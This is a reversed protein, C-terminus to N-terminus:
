RPRAFGQELATRQSHCPKCYPRLNSWRLRLDPRDRPSIIHDAEQTARGCGPTCCLPHRERFLRSCRRWDADYGQAAPTPRRQNFLAKRRAEAEERTPMGSPRHRPPAIPMVEGQASARVELRQGQLLCRRPGSAM